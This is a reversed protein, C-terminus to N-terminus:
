RSLSLGRCPTTAIVNVNKQFRANAEDNTLNREVVRFRGVHQRAEAELESDGDVNM